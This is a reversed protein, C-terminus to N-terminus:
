SAREAALWAAGIIGAKNKLEAPVIPTELELLPLFKEHKKSVGGGVVFLDPWFLMQMTEYYRQLRVAWAKWSLDENEKVSMAARTEADHGDVEIHGLETNPLLVGDNIIATGIGTGLTTLIVVGETGRAAGFQVEALGAADADNVITVARGLRDSFFSEAELGEWDEHLNAMMPIRGHRVPAPVTIGIPSDPALQDAFHDVVRAVVEAVNAPTSHAPTEIRHRDAAFDGASLDVPAGKVGSGGIDIGLVTSM